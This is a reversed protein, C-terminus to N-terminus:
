SNIVKVYLLLDTTDAGCQLWAPLTGCLSYGGKSFLIISPANSGAIKAGLLRLNLLQRAYSELLEISEKAFGQKRFEPFIYIGIYARRHIASLEYLDIIGVIEKESKKEVILRLQGARFPDADYTSAYELINDKSLPASMENEVWQSSDSEAIMMSAADERNVARLRVRNGELFIM